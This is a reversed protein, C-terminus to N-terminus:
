LGGGLREAVAWRVISDSDSMMAPLHEPAIREAVIRRVTAATDAVMAPLHERAIREAVARRVYPDPDAALEPLVAGALRRAIGWCLWGRNQKRLESWTRPAACLWALAKRCAGLRAARAILDPGIRNKLNSKTM